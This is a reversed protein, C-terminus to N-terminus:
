GFQFMRSQNILDALNDVKLKKLLRTKYTSVTKENIDLANAIDKNRKGSSLLNLVEIERSSLKKYRSIASSEGVNRSTFTSTLEENLFIGGKAIRKLAKLFVKTSASKPVYGAAGSKISRLAYIEEPHTSFILVRTQPFETKINRLVNIGNVQPMDIEMILIDPNIEELNKFLEDGNNVKGVISFDKSKKLMCAIGKRTVPHHDAIVIKKM